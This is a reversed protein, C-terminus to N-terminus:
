VDDDELLGLERARRVAARRSTVNLKRYIHRLHVKITNASLYMQEAIEANSLMTALYRLVTKERETVGELSSGPVSGALHPSPLNLLTRAFGSQTPRLLVLRELLGKLPETGPGTFPARLNEPEAGAVARRLADLADNDRRLQNASLAHIVRAHVALRVDRRQYVVPALLQDLGDPEGDALRARALLLTEQDSRDAPHVAELRSRLAASSGATLEAEAETTALWRHVLTPGDIEHLASRILGVQTRADEPRGRATDLAAQTLRMAILALPESQNGQTEFGLALMDDAEDLANTAISVLALALYGAAAQQLNAWGRAEALTRCQAGWVAAKRLRGTVAAALALHGLDNVETLEVGAAVSAQLGAILAQMAAEDDGLWLLGVGRLNLAIARYEDALPIASGFQDLTELASRAATEVDRASGRVRAAVGELLCLVIRTSPDAAEVDKDVMSRAMILHPEIEVYRGQAMRLAGASLQLDATGGLEGTPIQALTTALAHRDPTQLRHLAFKTLVTGALPWNRAAVAHRVADVPRDNAAFWEAALEHLMPISEPRELRIQRRLMEALMPHYRYWCRDPGLATIFANDRELLDLTLQGQGQGTLKDALEGCVRDVLSTRLLFQWTKSSQGAVVESLLYDTVARDSGSFDALRADPRCLFMGALRLGAAWGDTKALLHGLDAEDVDLGQRALMEAAEDATFALDSVQIEALQGSLRLGHLPLRPAVRAVLVVRLPTKHRFLRAIQDHVHASQVEGVDDIVLVIGQSLKSLGTQIKRHIDPSPGAVPALSALPNDPRVVGSARLAALVYNWFVHPEDDDADLTLWAVSRTRSAEAAWSAVLLTKGWGAGGTVLTVPSKTGLDLAEHLRPRHVFGAPVEPRALKAAVVGADGSIPPRLPIVQHLTAGDTM